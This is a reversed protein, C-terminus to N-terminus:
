SLCWPREEAGLGVHVEADAGRGIGQPPCNRIMKTYNGSDCGRCKVTKGDRGWPNGNRGKGKGHTRRVRGSGEGGSFIEDCQDDSAQICCYRRRALTEASRGGRGDCLGACCGGWRRESM